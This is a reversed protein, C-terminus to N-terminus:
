ECIAIINIDTIDKDIIKHANIPARNAYEWNITGEMDKHKLSDFKKFNGTCTYYDFPKLLTKTISHENLILREIGRRQNIVNALINIGLSQKILGGINTNNILAIFMASDEFVRSLPSHIIEYNAMITIDFVKISTVDKPEILLDKDLLQLDSLVEKFAVVEDKFSVTEIM